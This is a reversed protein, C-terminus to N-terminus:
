LAQYLYDNSSEHALPVQAEILQQRLFPNDTRVKWSVDFDATNIDRTQIAALLAERQPFYVAFGDGKWSAVSMGLSACIAVKAAADQQDARRSQNILERLPPNAVGDTCLIEGSEWSEPPCLKNQASLGIFPNIEMPYIRCVLPREEYIGCLNDARLSPCQKLANGAFVAIVHIDKKGTSVKAARSANHLYEPTAESESSQSFAELIVAVDDGRALWQEAENMTLPVLRDKCCIGCAVCTYRVANNNM